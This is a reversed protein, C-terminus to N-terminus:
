VVGQLVNCRRKLRCGTEQNNDPQARRQCPGRGLGKHVKRESGQRAKRRSREWKGGVGVRERQHLRWGCVRQQWYVGTWCACHPDLCPLALCRSLVSCGVTGIRRLPGPKATRTEETEKPAKDIM